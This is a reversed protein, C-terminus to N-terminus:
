RAGAVERDLEHLVEEERVEHRRFDEALAEFVQIAGAFEGRTARGGLDRLLDRFKQHVAVCAELRARQEPRLTWIAPYYLEDEQLFHVELAEQLRALSLSLEAGGRQAVFAERVASFLEDLRRHQEIVERELREESM